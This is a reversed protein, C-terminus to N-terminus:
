LIGCVVPGLVSGQPVGVNLRFAPSQHQGLKVYQTQGELYSHIWTLLTATVGFEPRLHQLLVKHDVTDFAASLDLGILVTVQKDDVAMYVGDLVDLLATETSHEKKYASQCQSFNASNLLHPHQRTLMLWELVISITSLNSTPRYNGPSLSNLGPKKLLPTVQVQQFRIPFKGTQTSLNALKAIAPSFVHACSKLLSCPLVDLPSPKSPTASLLRRAEKTTVPQFSSLSPGTLSSMGLQQNCSIRDVKDTFFGSFM